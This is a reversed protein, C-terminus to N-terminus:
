PSHTRKEAAARVLEAAAPTIRRVIEQIGAANPHLGDPLNLAPEGAVGELFFPYLPVGHRAALSPYIAEFRAGDNARWQPLIRMGALLVPIGRAKLHELIADLNGYTVEPDIGRLADNIGLEVIVADPQAARKAGLLAKLRARGGVSTIGSIGGNEVVVDLGQGRLARELQAPFAEARDLGYGATLSDGLALLRVPAEAASAPRALWALALTVLVAGATILARRRSDGARIRRQARVPRLRMTRRARAARSGRGALRKLLADFTHLIM